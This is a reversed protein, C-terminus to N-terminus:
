VRDVLESLCAIRGGPVATALSSVGGAPPPVAGRAECEVGRVRGRCAPAM